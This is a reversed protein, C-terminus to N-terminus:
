NIPGGARRALLQATAHSPHTPDTLAEIPTVVLFSPQAQSPAWGVRACTGSTTGASTNGGATADDASTGSDGKAAAADKVDEGEAGEGGNDTAAATPQH